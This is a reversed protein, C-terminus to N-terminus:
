GDLKLMGNEVVAGGRLTGHLEGMQDRIGQSFDWRALPLPLQKADPKGRKELAADRGARRLAALKEDSEALQRQVRTREEERRRAQQPTDISRDGHRVGEFVAKFRYYDAQLIPDFKHDHCRACNVTLGLFTQSVTSILDELEEERTRARVS